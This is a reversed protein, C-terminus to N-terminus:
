KNCFILHIVSMLASVEVSDISYWIERGESRGTIINADKLLALHQSVASQSLNVFNALKSVTLPQEILRCLIMLRNANALLKLLSEAKAVNDEINM